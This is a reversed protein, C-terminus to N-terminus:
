RKSELSKMLHKFQDLHQQTTQEGQALVQQLQPSAYQRLVRIKDLMEMHAGIQQGVYCNDFEAGHKEGLERTLQQERQQDMQRIVAIFNLGQNTGAQVASGPLNTVSATLTQNAPQQGAQQAGQQVAGQQVIGPTAM